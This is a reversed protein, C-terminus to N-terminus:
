FHLRKLFLLLLLSLERYGPTLSYSLSSSIITALQQKFLHDVHQPGTNLGCVCVCCACLNLSVCCCEAQRYILAFYPSTAIRRDAEVEVEGEWMGLSRVM